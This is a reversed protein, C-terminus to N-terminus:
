EEEPALVEGDEDLFESPWTNYAEYVASYPVLIYGGERTEVKLCGTPIDNVPDTHWACAAFHLLHVNGESVPNASETPSDAAETDIQAQPADEDGAFSETVEPGPKESHVEIGGKLPWDTKPTNTVDVAGGEVVTLTPPIVKEVAKKIASSPLMGTNHFESKTKENADKATVIKKADKLVQEIADKGKEIIPKLAAIQKQNFKAPVGMEILKEKQIAEDVARYASARSKGTVDAYYADWTEFGRSIYARGRYLQMLWKSVNSSSKEINAEIRLADDSTMLNADPVIDLQATQPEPDKVVAIDTGTEAARQEKAQETKSPAKTAVKNEKPNGSTEGTLCMTDTVYENTLGERLKYRPSLGCKRINHAVIEAFRKQTFNGLIRTAEKIVKTRTDEGCVMRGSMAESVFWRGTDNKHVFLDFTDSIKIPKANCLVFVPDGDTVVYYKDSVKTIM